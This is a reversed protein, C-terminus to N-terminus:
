GVNTIRRTGRFNFDVRQNLSKNHRSATRGDARRKQRWAFVALISLLLLSAACSVAIIVTKRSGIPDSQNAPEDVSAGSLRELSRVSVAATPMTAAVVSKTRVLWAGENVETTETAADMNRSVTFNVILSGLAMSRVTVSASSVSLLSAIDLTLASRLADRRTDNSLLSAYFDGGLVLSLSTM